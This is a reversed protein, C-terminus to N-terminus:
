GKDVEPAPEGFPVTFTVTYNKGNIDIVAVGTVDGAKTSTVELNAVGKEKLAKAFGTAAEISVGADAPKVTAYANKVELTPVNGVAVQNGNIDVAKIEVLATKDTPTKATPATAVLTSLERGISIKCSASLKNVVDTATIILDGIFDKDKTTTFVGTNPDIAGQIKNYDNAAFSIGNGDFDTDDVDKEVGAADVWTVTPVGSVTDMPMVSQPYSLKLGTITGQQKITFTVDVYSGNDLSFRIKYDGEKNLANKFQAKLYNTASDLAYNFSDKKITVGDPKTIADVAKIENGFPDSPVVQNGNTDVLEFKFSPKTGKALTRDNDTKLNIKSVGAALFQVKVDKATAGDTRYTITYIGAKTAYVKTKAIGQADTTVSTASFRAAAKDASFKVEAGSVPANNANTVKVSIEYYDLDNAKGWTNGERDVAPGWVGTQGLYNAIAPINVADDRDRVAVNGFLNINAASSGAFTVDLVKILKIKGVSTVSNGILYQYITQNSDGGPANALAFGVKATGAISSKVKITAKGDAGTKVSGVNNNTPGPATFSTGTGEVFSDAAGRSSAFYVTAPTPNYFQDYTFITYEVTDENDADVQTKNASVNSSFENAAAPIVTVAATAATTDKSTVLSWNYSGAVSPNTVPVEIVANGNDKQITDGDGLTITVVNNAVGYKIGRVTDGTGPTVNVKGSGIATGAAVDAVTYQLPVTITITDGKVLNKEPDFNFKVTNAAGVKDNLQGNFTFVAPAGAFATMPILTLLMAVIMITAILKRSKFM